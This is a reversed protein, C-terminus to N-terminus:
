RRRAEILFRKSTCAFRGNREITEHLAELRDRHREVSFGPVTWIVKRLFVVVAAVDSFSVELTAEQLGTVELGAAEARAVARQPSRNDSPAFPGLFHESLAHNSGAGIQQSFFTGGRRLVRAIEMWPTEVPHRSSVLEFAGDRYPLPGADAVRAVTVGFPALAARALAVNPEFSETAACRGPRRAARGLSWALVEGGGTQM